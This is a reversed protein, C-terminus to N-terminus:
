RALRSCLAHAAFPHYLAQGEACQRQSDADAYRRRQDDGFVPLSSGFSSGRGTRSCGALGGGFGGLLLGGAGGTFGGLGGALLFFAPSGFSGGRLTGFLDGSGLGLM